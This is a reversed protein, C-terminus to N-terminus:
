EGYDYYGDENEAYQVFSFSTMHSAIVVKMWSEFYNCADMEDAYSNVCDLIVNPNMYDFAITPMELQSNSSFRVDNFKDVLLTTYNFYYLTDTGILYGQEDIQDYLYPQNGYFLRWGMSAYEDLDYADDFEDDMTWGGIALGLDDNNLNIQLSNAANLWDSDYNRESHYNLQFFDAMPMESLDVSFNNQEDVYLASGEPLVIIVEKFPDEYIDFSFLEYDLGLGLSTFISTLKDLNETDFSTSYLEQYTRTKVYYFEFYGNSVGAYEESMLEYYEETDWDEPEETIKEAVAENKIKVSSSYHLPSSEIGFPVKTVSSAELEALYKAPIGWSVNKTGADLGGDGIAVLSGDTKHFIPSGSYGPLLSGELMMIEIKIDPVKFSELKEVVDPPLNNYLNETKATTGGRILNKPQAARAGMNYGISSLKEDYPIIGVNTEEEKIPVVGSPFMAPQNIQLLVLDAKEHVKIVSVNKNWVGGYLIEITGKPHMAHLSTVVWDKQKWVFGTCVNPDKGPIKVMIQVVSKGKEKFDYKSQTFGTLWFAFAFVLLTLKNKM